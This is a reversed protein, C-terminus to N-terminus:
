CHSIQRYWAIADSITDRLARSSIGLEALATIKPMYDFAAALMMGGTPLPTKRGALQYMTEALYAMGMTPRAPAIFRPAPVGGIACILSYLDHTSIEHAGLLLPEGFRMQDLAALTAAAVDRVDIVNLMHAITAPIEGRLLLPITCIRLERIDWPGLCYTPNVLMARLGRRVAQLMKSDILEKVEFYPHALRLTADQAREAANRPRALTVFSGTYILTAHRRMVADLLRRTRIEARGVESGHSANIVSLSELPYPAAADVVLNHGAIWKDLQGHEDADGPSYEVPLDILNVPRKRRRGCATVEDGRALLARIIANGIHGSGGLVLVKM